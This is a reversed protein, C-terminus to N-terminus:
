LAICDYRISKGNISYAPKVGAIYPGKAPRKIIIRKPKAHMAAALLDAEDSCPRELKQLLQFKKKILSSKQREPFMPDLYIVDVADVMKNMAEISDGEVVHMRYVIDKLEPIKKARRLADKLLAAIVADHEYLTVEYGAAALLLSDEGLGATADIATMTGEQTKFKAAKVLLEHKWMEEKVRPIMTSLDAIMSLKGGNLSLGDKGFSLVLDEKEADEINGIMEIKLHKALNEADTQFRKHDAHVYLRCSRM